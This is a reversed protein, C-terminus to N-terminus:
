LEDLQQQWGQRCQLCARIIENKLEQPIGRVAKDIAADGKEGEVIRAIMNQETTNAILEEFAKYYNIQARIDDIKKLTEATMYHRCRM